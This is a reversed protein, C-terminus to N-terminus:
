DMLNSVVVIQGRLVNEMRKKLNASKIVTLIQQWFKDDEDGLLSIQLGSKTALEQTMMEALTDEVSSIKDINKLNLRKSMEDIIKGEHYHEDILHYIKGIFNYLPYMSSPTERPYSDFKGTEVDFDFDGMGINDFMAHFLMWPTPLAGRSLYNSSSVIYCAGADLNAFVKELDISSNSKEVLEKFKEKSFIQVRSNDNYYGLISIGVMPVVYIPISYGAYAWNAKKEYSPNRYFKDIAKLDTTEGPFTEREYNGIYVGPEVGAFPAENIQKVVKRVLTKLENITIKM